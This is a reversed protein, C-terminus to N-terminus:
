RVPVAQGLPETERESPRKWEADSLKFILRGVYVLAFGLIADQTIGYVKGEGVFDLAIAVVPLAIMWIPALRARYLGIVLLLLGLLGIFVFLVFILIPSNMAAKYLTIMAARDPQQAMAVEFLTVVTGGVFGMIGLVTFVGGINGLTAGRGRLLRMIGIAGPILLIWAIMELLAGATWSGPQAAVNVFEQTLNGPESPRVLDSALKFIPWALLCLGVGTRRFNDADTIKLM